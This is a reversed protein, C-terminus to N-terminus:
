THKNRIHKWHTHFRKQERYLVTYFESNEKILFPREKEPQTADFLSQVRDERLTPVWEPDTAHTEVFVVHNNVLRAELVVDEICKINVYGKNPYAKALIKKM